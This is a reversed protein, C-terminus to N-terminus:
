LKLLNCVQPLPGGLDHEKFYWSVAGIGMSQLVSMLLSLEQYSQEWSGYIKMTAIKKGDRVKKRTPVYGVEKTIAAVLVKESVNPDAALLDIIIDAIHSADLNPHDQSISHNICTHPGKIEMIEFFNHSKRKRARLKWECGESNQQCVVDWTLPDSKLVKIMQHNSIHVKKVLNILQEKSEFLMGKALEAPNHLETAKQMGYELDSAIMSSGDFSRYYPIDDDTLETNGRSGRSSTSSVCDVGWQVSKTGRSGESSAGGMFWTRSSSGSSICDIGGQFSKSGHNSSTNEGVNSYRFMDGSSISMGIPVKEIYLEVRPKSESDDVSEFMYEVDDDDVILVVGYKNTSPNKFRRFIKLKFSEPNIALKRYLVNLIEVYKLNFHLKVFAIVDRDYTSGIAADYIINGDVYLWGWVYDSAM